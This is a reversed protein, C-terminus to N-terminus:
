RASKARKARTPKRRSSPAKGQTKSKLSGSKSALTKAVGIGDIKKFYMVTKTRHNKGSNVLNMLWKARRKPVGLTKATEEATAFGATIRTAM